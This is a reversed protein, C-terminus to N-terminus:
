SSSKSELQRLRREMSFLLAIIGSFIIVLVAVVVYIKLNSRFFSTNNEAAQAHAAVSVMVMMIASSLKFRTAAPIPTTAAAPPCHPAVAPAGYRLSASGRLARSGGNNMQHIM